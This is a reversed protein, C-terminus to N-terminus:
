PRPADRGGGGAAGAGGGGGLVGGGGRRAGCMSVASRAMSLRPTAALLSQMRAMSTIQLTDIIPQISGESSSGTSPSTLESTIIKLVERTLGPTVRIQTLPAVTVPAILVASLLASALKLASPSVKVITRVVPLVAPQLPRTVALTTALESPM